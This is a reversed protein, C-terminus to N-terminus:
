HLSLVQRWDRQLSYVNIYLSNYGNSLVSSAGYATCNLQVDTDMCTEVECQGLSMWVLGFCLPIVPPHMAKVARHPNAKQMKLQQLNIQTNELVAKLQEKLHLHNSTSGVASTVNTKSMQLQTDQINLAKPAVSTKMFTFPHAVNSMTSQITSQVDEGIDDYECDAESEDARVLDTINSCVQPQRKLKVRRKGIIIALMLIALMAVAGVTAYLATGTSSNKKGGNTNNSATWLNAPMSTGPTLEALTNPYTWTPSIATTTVVAVKQVTVQVETFTDFGFREVACWYRGMDSLQLHSFTVIFVGDGSDVLTIRGGNQVTALVDQRDKCPDKCLYKNNNWAYRHSCQFSVEGGEFGEVKTGAGETGAAYLLCCFVSIIKM